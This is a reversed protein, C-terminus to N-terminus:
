SNFPSAHVFLGIRTSQGQTPVRSCRCISALHRFIQRVGSREAFTEPHMFPPLDGPERIQTDKLRGQHEDLSMISLFEGFVTAPGSPIQVRNGTVGQKSRM